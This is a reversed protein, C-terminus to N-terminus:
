RVLEKKKTAWSTASGKFCVCRFLCQVKWTGACDMYDLRIEKLLAILSFVICLRVASHFPHEVLFSFSFFFLFLFLFSIWSFTLFPVCKLSILKATVIPMKTALNVSLSSFAKTAQQSTTLGKLQCYM